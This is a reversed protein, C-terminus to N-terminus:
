LEPCFAYYGHEDKQIVAAFSYTTMSTLETKGDM